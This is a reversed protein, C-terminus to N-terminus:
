WLIELQDWEVTIECGCGGGIFNYDPIDITQYITADLLASGLESALWASSGPSVQDWVYLIGNGTAYGAAFSGGLLTKTWLGTMLAASMPSLVLAGTRYELYLEYITFDLNVGPITMSKFGAKPNLGLSQYHAVSRKIMPPPNRSVYLALLAPKLRNVSSLVPDSGIAAALRHAATVGQALAILAPDTCPRPGCINIHNMVSQVILDSLTQLNGGAQTYLMTMRAIEVDDLDEFIARTKNWALPQYRWNYNMNRVFNAKISPLDWGTTPVGAANSLAHGPYVQIVSTASQLAAPTMQAKTPVYTPTSFQNCLATVGTPPTCTLAHAARMSFCSVLVLVAASLIKM